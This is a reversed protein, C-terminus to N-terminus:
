SDQTSEGEIGLVDGVAQCDEDVTNCIYCPVVRRGEVGWVEGSLEQLHVIITNMAETVAEAVM